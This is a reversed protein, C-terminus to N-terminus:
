VLVYYFDATRIFATVNVLLGSKSHQRIIVRLLLCSNTPTVIAGGRGKNQGGGLGECGATAM